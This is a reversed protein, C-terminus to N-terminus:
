TKGFLSAAVKPELDDNLFSGLRDTRVASIESNHSRM